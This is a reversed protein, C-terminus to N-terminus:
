ILSKIGGLLMQIAKHNQGGEPIIIDAFRKSPEVFEDHMPKVTTEYQSIVSELTRGRENIDRRIRRLIRLDAETDVFVKLDFLERIEPVAFILIGDVLIIKSPQLLTTESKRAHTTFDYQPCVIPQGDKLLQLHEVFLDNDLSEPHDFNLLDRQAKSLHDFQKYYADHALTTIDSPNFEKCIAEAVTSKGSGTGGAVGVLICSFSM